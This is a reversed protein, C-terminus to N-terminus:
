YFASFYSIRIRTIFAIKCKKVWPVNWLQHQERSRTHNNPHANNDPLRFFLFILLRSAAQCETRSLHRLVISPLLIRILNQRLFVLNKNRLAPVPKLSLNCIVLLM